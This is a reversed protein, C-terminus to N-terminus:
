TIKKTFRYYLIYLVFIRNYIGPLKTDRKQKFLSRGTQESARWLVVDSTRARGGFFATSRKIM